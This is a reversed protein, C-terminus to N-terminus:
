LVCFFRLSGKEEANRKAKKAEYMRQDAVKIAEEVEGEGKWESVGFSFSFPFRSLAEAIRELAKIAGEKTGGPFALLVEDGGFRVAIDEGRINESIVRAFTKLLEDGAHHGKADNIDKLGDVDLMAFAISGRSRKQRKVERPLWEEFFFIRSYLGTLYDRVSSRKLCRVIGGWELFFFRYGRLSTCLRLFPPLFCEWLLLFFGATSLLIGSGRFRKRVLFQTAFYSHLAVTCFAVLFALRICYEM